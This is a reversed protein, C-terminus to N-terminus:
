DNEFRNLVKDEFEVWAEAAEDVTEWGDIILKVKITRGDKTNHNYKWETKKSSPIKKCYNMKPLNIIKLRGERWWQIITKQDEWSPLNRIIKEALDISLEEGNIITQYIVIDKLEETANQCVFLFKEFKRFSWGMLKAIYKRRETENKCQDYVEPRGGLLLIPRYKEVWKAAEEKSTGCIQPLKKTKM